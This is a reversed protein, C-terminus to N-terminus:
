GGVQYDILLTVLRSILSVLLSFSRGAGEWVLVVLVFLVVISLILFESHASSGEWSCLPKWKDCWSFPHLHEDDEPIIDNQQDEKPDAKPAETKPGVHVEAAALGRSHLDNSSSEEDPPVLLEKLQRKLRPNLEAPNPDIPPLYQDSTPYDM